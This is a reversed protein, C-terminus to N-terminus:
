SGEVSHLEGHLRECDVFLTDAAEEVVFEEAM